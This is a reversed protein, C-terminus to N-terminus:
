RDDQSISSLLGKLEQVKGPQENALDKTEYPDAALNFLSVDGGKKPAILKWDGLRVASANPTRWYMPRPRAKSEKGCVYPWIDRGDWNLNRKPSWGVLNCLTPM